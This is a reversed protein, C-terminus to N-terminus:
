FVVFGYELGDFYILKQLHDPHLSLMAGLLWCDGLLGQKVELSNKHLKRLCADPHIQHPRLWELQTFSYLPPCLADNYLSSDSAPFEPDAFLSRTKQVLAMAEYILDKITPPPRTM